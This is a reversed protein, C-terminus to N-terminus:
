GVGGRVVKQRRKEAFRRLGSVFAKMNPKAFGEVSIRDGLAAISRRQPKYPDRLRKNAEYTLVDAAQLPVHANKEVFTFTMQGVHYQRRRKILAFSSLADAQFDNREHFLALPERRIGAAETREIINHLVWQLSIGYPHSLVAQLEETGVLGPEAQAAEALDRLNIGMAIGYLEYKAPVALLRAVLTDRDEETWGKFEGKLAACDASHFVEIPHKARNWEEVFAPWTELRGAYAGVAVVASGVHTGSEDIFIQIV